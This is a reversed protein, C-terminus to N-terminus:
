FSFKCIYLLRNETHDVSHLSICLWVLTVKALLLDENQNLWLPDGFNDSHASCMDLLKLFLCACHNFNVRFLFISVALWYNYSNNSCKFFFTVSHACDNFLDFLDSLGRYTRIINLKKKLRPIVFFRPTLSVAALRPVMFIFMICRSFLVPILRWFFLVIMSITTIGVAILFIIRISVLSVDFTHLVFLKLMRLSGTLIIRIMCRRLLATRRSPWLIRSLRKLM